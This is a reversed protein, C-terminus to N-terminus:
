VKLFSSFLWQKYKLGFIWKEFKKLHPWWDMIIDRWAWLNFYTSQSHNKEHVSYSQVMPECANSTHGVGSLIVAFLYAKTSSLTLFDPAWQGCRATQTGEQRCLGKESLAKSPLEWPGTYEPTTWFCEFKNKMLDYHSQAGTNLMDHPKSHHLTEVASFGM